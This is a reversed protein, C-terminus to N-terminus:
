AFLAIAEGIFLGIATEPITDGPRLALFRGKKLDEGRLLGDPDSLMRGQEFYLAVRDAYPFVACVHGARAHRFNVSRWGPMVKGTLGPYAAVFAILAWALKATEDPLPALLADLGPFTPLTAPESTQM